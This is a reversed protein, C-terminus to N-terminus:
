VLGSFTEFYRSVTLSDPHGKLGQLTLKATTHTKQYAAQNAVTGDMRSRM